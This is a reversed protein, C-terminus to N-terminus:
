IRFLKLEEAPFIPDIVLSNAPIRSVDVEHGGYPSLVIGNKGDVTQASPYTDSQPDIEEPSYYIGPPVIGEHHPSCSSMAFAAFIGCVMGSAKTFTSRDVQPNDLNLLTKQCQECRISDGCSSLKDPHVTCYAQITPKNM